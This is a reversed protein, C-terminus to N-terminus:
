HMQEAICRGKHNSMRDSWLQPMLGHLAHACAQSVDKNKVIRIIDTWTNMNNHYMYTKIAHIEIADLLDV